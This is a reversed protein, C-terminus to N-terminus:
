SLYDSLLRRAAYMGVGTGVISVMFATMMGIRAGLWWGISGGITAGVFGLLKNV